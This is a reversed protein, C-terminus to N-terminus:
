VSNWTSTNSNYWELTSTSTNFRTSGYGLTTDRQATNGSPMIAAGNTGTADLYLFTSLPTWSSTASNYWELTGLTSNYRTSGGGLTADRQATTGAPMIGAGTSGTSDLYMFTTLPYWTATVASYWELTGLTTNYRTSGSGAWTSRQATNGVPLNTTAGTNADALIPITPTLTGSSTFTHIYNGDSTTITGGTYLQSTSTYSFVIVGSGGSGGYQTSSGTGGAGGGGSGTNTTGAM